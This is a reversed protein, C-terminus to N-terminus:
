IKLNDLNLYYASLTTDQITYLRNNLIIMSSIKGILKPIYFSFHYQGDKLTYMDIVAYKSFTKEDENDAKMDSNIIVWQKSLCFQRNVYFGPSSITSANESRLTTVKIKAITNTDITRARYRINFHSDVSLFQNRYFYVYVFSSTIADYQLMGDTSFVGDIQDELLNPFLEVGASDISIKGLINRRLKSDFTRIIFSNNSIPLLISTSIRQSDIIVLKKSISSLSGTFITGSSFNNVYYNPSDISVHYVPGVSKENAPMEIKYDKSTKLDHGFISLFSPDSYNSLYIGGATVGAFYYEKNKLSISYSKDFMHAPFLRIFANSGKNNKISFLQLIIVVVISAIFCVLLSLYTKLKVKM